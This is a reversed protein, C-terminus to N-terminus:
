HHFNELAKPDHRHKFLPVFLIALVLAYGAFILWISHWDRVGNVTFADIVKGSGISGLFGGFGNTMMMFVGQASSRFDAPAETEVYLSGSINFFDFAMGYVLMSLVLMWLGDGPNGFGFLGFRFVWAIMSMLMVKKIGFKRLFFPICLIFVCEAMQSVSMLIAPHKVGITDKYIPNNAFDHLFADGFTNTIQLCAGLFLGFVLFVAMKVPFRRLFNAVCILLVFVLVGWLMQQEPMIFPLASVIVALVVTVLFDPKMLEYASNKGPKGSQGGANLPPCAPLTFAFIGLLISAISGIYLQNASLEWGCLSTTWMACIFGVTGFVRIPPFVKIVNYGRDELIRYSVSNGLAITPMYALFNILFLGAIINPSTSKTVLFLMVGSILFCLGFLREGNLWRDAIIGTIGPMIISSIGMFGYIAGITTGDFHLTQRKYVD